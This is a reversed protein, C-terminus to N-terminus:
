CKKGSFCRILKQLKASIHIKSIPHNDTKRTFSFVHWPVSIFINSVTIIQADHDSLGNILPHVPFDHRYTSIYINIILACSNNSIITPFTVTSFLSFSALLSDLLHKSSNDNLCNINLDGCLILETLTKYIKNPISDLQNLFCSFNGTPSRYICIITFSNSLIHLKLAWIELDKEKNCQDLNITHFQINKPVFIYVGGHRYTQRYFTAGLNYQSENINGIEETRLNHETLCIVQPANPSLSNWFEDIKNSIGWINPHLIM